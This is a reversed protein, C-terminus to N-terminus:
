SSKGIKADLKQAIRILILAVSREKILRGRKTSRTRLSARIFPKAEARVLDGASMEKQRLGKPYLITDIDDHSAGSRLGNVRLAARLRNLESLIESPEQNIDEVFDKLYASWNAFVAAKAEQASRPEVEDAKNGDIYCGRFQRVWRWKGDSVPYIRFFDWRGVYTIEEDYGHCVGNEFHTDNAKEWVLPKVAISANREIM